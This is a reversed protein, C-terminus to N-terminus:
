EELWMAGEVTSSTTGLTFTPTAWTGDGRLFKENDGANPKPVLGSAGGISATAGVFDVGGINDAIRAALADLHKNQVVDNPNNM